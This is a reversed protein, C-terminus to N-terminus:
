PSGDGPPAPLEALYAEIAPGYSEAHRALAAVARVLAERDRGLDALCLAALAEAADPFGDADDDPGDDSGEHPGDQPRSAGDLVALADEARDLARLSGALQVVAQARLHGALGADLAARYLAVADTDRGAFDSASAREFLAEPDGEPREAALEEVAALVEEEHMEEARDWLAAM